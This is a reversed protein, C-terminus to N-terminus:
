FTIGLGINIGKLKKNEYLLTNFKESSIDTPSLNKLSLKRSSLEFHFLLYQNSSLKIGTNIGYSFRSTIGELEHTLYCIDGKIFPLLYVKYFLFPYQYGINLSFEKFEVYGTEGVMINSGTEYSFEKNCALHYSKFFSIGYFFKNGWAINIGYGIKEAKNRPIYLQPILRIYYNFNRVTSFIETNNRKLFDIDLIKWSDLEIIWSSHILKNNLLFLVRTPTEMSTLGTINNYKFNNKRNIIKQAIGDAIAIRIAEIPFGNEINKYIRHKAEESANDMLNYYTDVDVLSVSKYSVYKLINKYGNLADNAFENSITRLAINNNIDEKNLTKNIFEKIQSSPISLNVSERDTVKWTNIGIISFGSPQTNDSILLPGGSSGRDVQATHQITFIRKNDLSEMPFHANSIIGKGLQWSPNNKISPFGASYVEVGEIPQELGFSLAQGTLAEQPYSLLAM